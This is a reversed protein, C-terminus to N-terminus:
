QSSALNDLIKDFHKSGLSSKLVMLLENEDFNGNLVKEVICDEFEFIKLYQTCERLKPWKMKIRKKM